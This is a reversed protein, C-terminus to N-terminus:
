GEELEREEKERNASYEEFEKDTMEHIGKERALFKEFEEEDEEDEWLGNASRRWAEQLFSDSQWDISEYGAEYKTPVRYVGRSQQFGVKTIRVLEDYQSKLNNFDQEEAPHSLDVVVNFEQQLGPGAKTGVRCTYTLDEPNLIFMVFWPYRDFMERFTEMDQGSPNPAFGPHSHGWVRMCLSPPVDWEDMDSIFNSLGEETMDTHAGGSDQEVLFFDRLVTPDDEDLVFFGSVEVDDENKAFFMFKQFAYPTMKFTGSDECGWVMKVTKM